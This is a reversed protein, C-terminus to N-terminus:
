ISIFAFCVLRFFILLLNGTYIRPATPVVTTTTTPTTSIVSSSTIAILTSQPVFPTTQAPTFPPDPRPTTPVEKQGIVYKMYKRDEINTSYVPGMTKVTVSWSTAKGVGNYAQCTYVGLNHLKVGNILLTHDKSITYEHSRFPIFENDKWWMVVPPPYGYAYCNLM